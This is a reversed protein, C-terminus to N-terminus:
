SCRLALKLHDLNQQMLALYDMGRSEEDETLGEVPSLLLLSTGTEQAIAQAIRSGGPPEDFLYSIGLSQITDVLTALERPTPETDHAPGLVAIVKFGYRHAPYSLYNHMTIVTDGPCSALVKYAQHLQELEDILVSAQARYEQARDQDVEILAETIKEVQHQALVPDLWVHPDVGPGQGALPLLDLGDTTNVVMLNANDLGELVQHLWPEFGAGNVVFLRAENLLKIDSAKPEWDHPSAGPPLMNVVQIYDGGVRAAFYALPYVSAVVTVPSKDRDNGTTSPAPAAPRDGAFLWFFAVAVLAALAVVATM